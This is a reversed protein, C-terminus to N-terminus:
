ASRRVPQPRDALIAFSDLTTSPQNTPVQVACGHVGTAGQRRLTTAAMEFEIFSQAVTGVLLVHRGQVTSGWDSIDVTGQALLEVAGLLRQATAGVPQLIPREFQTACALVRRAYTEINPFAVVDDDLNQAHLLGELLDGIRVSM